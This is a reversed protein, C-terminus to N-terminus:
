ACVGSLVVKPTWENENGSVAAAPDIDSTRATDVPEEQTVAPSGSLDLSTFPAARLSLSLSLSWEALAWLVSAAGGVAHISWLM